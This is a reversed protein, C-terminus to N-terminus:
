TPIRYATPVCWIAYKFHTGLQM